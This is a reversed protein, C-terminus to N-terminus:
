LDFWLIRQTRNRPARLQHNNTVGLLQRRGTEKIANDIIVLLGLPSQPIPFCKLRLM